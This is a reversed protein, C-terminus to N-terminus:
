ERMQLEEESLSARFSPRDFLQDAYKKVSAAQRPLKIGFHPLRWLLPAVACDM